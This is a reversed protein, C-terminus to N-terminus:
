RDLRDLHRRLALHHELRAAQVDHQDAELSRELLALAEGQGELELPGALDLDHRRDLVNAVGAAAMLMAVAVSRIGRAFRRDTWRRSTSRSSAAAPTSVLRAQRKIRRMTTSAPFNRNAQDCDVEPLCPM